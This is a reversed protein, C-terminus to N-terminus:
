ESAAARLTEALAGALDGPAAKPTFMRVLEGEQDILYYFSSHDVLYDPGDTDGTKAFYVRYDDAVARIRDLEGTLGIMRPHFHAVYTEVTEVTDREPDVTIFLPTVRGALAPELADLALTMDQLETPCVDPCYTYGFYILGYPTSLDAPAFPQGHQDTLRFPGGIEAAPMFGATGAAEADAPARAAPGEDPGGLQHWVVLAAVAIAALTALTASLVL